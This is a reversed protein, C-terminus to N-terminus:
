EKLDGILFASVPFSSLASQLSAVDCIQDAVGQCMKQSEVLRERFTEVEKQLGELHDLNFQHNEAEM